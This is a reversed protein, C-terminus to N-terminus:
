ITRSRAQSPLLLFTMEPTEHWIGWARLKNLIVCVHSTIIIYRLIFPDLLLLCCMQWRAQFIDFCVSTCKTMLTVASTQKDFPTKEKGMPMKWLRSL